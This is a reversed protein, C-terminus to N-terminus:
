GLLDSLSFSTYCGIKMVSGDGDMKYGTFNGCDMVNGDSGISIGM